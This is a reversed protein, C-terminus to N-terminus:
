AKMVEIFLGTKHLYCEEKTELVEIHVWEKDYMGLIQVKENKKTVRITNAGYNPKRRLCYNVMAYYDFYYKENNTTPKHNEEGIGLMGCAFVSQEYNRRKVLGTLKSGGANCYLPIKDHIERITRQGYNTLKQLNANGLNYTFSVLASFMDCNELIEAYCGYSSLISTVQNEIKTIDQAFLEEAKQKTISQMTVDAGYHGYGITYYKETPVPKYRNLRLGEFEKIKAKMSESTKM